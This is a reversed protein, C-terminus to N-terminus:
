YKIPKVAISFKSLKVMHADALDDGNGGEDDCAYHNEEKIFAQALSIRAGGESGKYEHKVSKEKSIHYKVNM